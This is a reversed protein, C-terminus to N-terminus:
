PQTRRPLLPALAGLIEEFDLPKHIVLDAGAALAESRVHSDSMATYVVVKTDLFTLDGRIRRLVDMGSMEPLLLDLFVLDVQLHNILVLGAMGGEVAFAAFGAADFLRELAEREARDDEVILVSIM